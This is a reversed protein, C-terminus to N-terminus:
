NKKEMNRVRGGAWTGKKIKKREWTGLINMYIEVVARTESGFVVASKVREYVNIKVAESIARSMFIQRISYYSRNGAAIRSIIEDNILKKSNILANLYRFNLGGQFVERYM